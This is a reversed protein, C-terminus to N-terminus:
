PTGRLDFVQECAERFDGAVAFRLVIKANRSAEDEMKLKTEVINTALSRNLGRLMIPKRPRRVKCNVVMLFAAGEHFKPAAKKARVSSDFM